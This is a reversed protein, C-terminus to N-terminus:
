GKVAGETLGKMINKQMFIYLLLIPLMSLVLAAFVLNYKSVFEGMFNYQFLPLTWFKSQKNLIILPIMFDNWIWLGQLIIVSATMPRLLPYVIRVFITWLSAGDIFASEEVELPIAKMYGFYLFSMKPVSLALYILVMGARNLLHVNSMIKVIPLMVIQFPIFIGLMVYIFALKYGRRSSNRELSYSMLPIFTVILVLSVATILISNYFSTIFGNDRFIEAYNGLYLRSPLTIFSRMLEQQTKLSSAVALYIPYVIFALGAALLLYILWNVLNKTVIGRRYIDM